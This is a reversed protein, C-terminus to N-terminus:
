EEKKDDKDERENIEMINIAIQKLILQFEEKSILEDDFIEDEWKNLVITSKTLVEKGKPTLYVKNQRRNDSDIERIVLEMDELKKISRAAAGKNINCRSSIKEQNLDDHHSIEFLLHLQTSNIGWDNLKHNLYTTQGRAIMIILKSIPLSSADTQKLEELSM